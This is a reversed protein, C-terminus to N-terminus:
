VRVSSLVCIKCDKCAKREAPLLSGAIGIIIISYCSERRCGLSYDGTLATPVANPGIATHPFSSLATASYIVLATFSSLGDTRLSGLFPWVDALDGWNM